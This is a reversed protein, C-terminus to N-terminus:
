NPMFEPFHRRRKWGLGLDRHSLLGEAALADRLRDTDGCVEDYFRRLGAEGENKELTNLLEHITVGGEEKPRAPSMEERYSGKELRYRYQALWDEWGTAHCHCLVVDELEVMDPNRKEGLVYSHLGIRINKFGTRVFVKGVVHSLFGGKLHLGFNPYLREVTRAREPGSPIFGKFQTGDGEIVENPRVLAGKASQPVAALVDGLPRDPWLFEDVDIHALWDLQPDTRYVRTANLSQRFQHTAPRKSKGIRNLWYDNTCVTVQTKPHARLLDWVRPCPEDLHVYVMKAGLEIHYAAFNLIDKAPAKITTVVGWSDKGDSM